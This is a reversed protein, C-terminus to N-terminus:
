AVGTSTTLQRQVFGFVAEISNFNDATLDSDLVKVGYHEEIFFVLELVGSSDIIGRDLLSDGDSLDGDTGSVFTQIIFKRLDDRMHM